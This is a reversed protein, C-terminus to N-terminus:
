SATRMEAVHLYYRKDTMTHLFFVFVFFWVGNLKGIVICLDQDYVPVGCLIMGCTCRTRRLCLITVNHVYKSLRIINIYIDTM